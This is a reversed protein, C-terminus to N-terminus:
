SEVQFSRGGLHVVTGPRVPTRLHQEARWKTGEFEFVIGNRAGVDVVHVEGEEALVVAHVKSMKMTEDILEYPHAAPYSAPASPNRGFVMPSELRLVTGDDLCIRPDTLMASEDLMTEDRAAQAGPANGQAAVGAQPSQAVPVFQPLGSGAYPITVSTPTVGESAFPSHQILGGPQGAAPAPSPTPAPAPASPAFGQVVPGVPPQHASPAASMGARIPQPGNGVTMSAPKAGLASEDQIDEPWTAVLGLWRDVASQGRRYTALLVIPMVGLTLVSSLGTILIQWLLRGGQPRTTVPDRYDFSLLLSGITQARRLVLVLQTVVVALACIGLVIEIVGVRYGAPGRASSLFLLLEGGILLLLPAANLLYAGVRAGRGVLARELRPSLSTEPM